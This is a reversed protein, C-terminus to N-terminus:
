ICKLISFLNLVKFTKYSLENFSLVQRILWIELQLPVETALKSSINFPHTIHITCVYIYEDKSWTYRGYYQFSLIELEM